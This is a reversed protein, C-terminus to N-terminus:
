VTSASDIAVRLGGVSKIHTRMMFPALVFETLPILRCLFPTIGEIDLVAYPYENDLCGLVNWMAKGTRCVWISEEM